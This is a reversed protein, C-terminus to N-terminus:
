PNDDASLTADGEPPRWYVSRERMLLGSIILERRLTFFDEHHRGILANVEREPYRVGPQFKAALWRLVVQRKKRSAPIGKLREGDLFDRLVKRDWEALDMDGVLAAVKEASLLDRSLAALTDPKLWYVHSTGDARMEVLDLDKLKALHHSVTPAKLELLTALEEVSYARGALLGVLRLRSEDAVVKFFALLKEFKEATM